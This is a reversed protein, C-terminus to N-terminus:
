AGAGTAGDAILDLAYRSGFDRRVQHSEAASCIGIRVSAVYERQAATLQEAWAYERATWATFCADYKAWESPMANGLTDPTSQAVM